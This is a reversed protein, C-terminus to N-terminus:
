LQAVERVEADVTWYDVGQVKTNTVDGTVIFDWEEGAAPESFSFRDAASLVNVAERAAFATGFLLSLTGARSKAPRLFVTPDSSGLPELVVNRSGRTYAYDLVLIPNLSAGDAWETMTEGYEVQAMALDLTQNIAAIGTWAIYPQGYAAGAPAVNTQRVRQWSSGLSNGSGLPNSVLAGAIDYWNTDLRLSPGGASKRGYVSMTLAQGATVPIGATGSGTLPGNMPSSTNATTMARRFFSGGDPGGSAPRTDVVTAGRPNLSLTELRPSLIRNRGLPLAQAAPVITAM